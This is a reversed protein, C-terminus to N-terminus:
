THLFMRWLVQVRWDYSFQYDFTIHLLFQQWWWCGSSDGLGAPLASGAWGRCLSRPIHSTNQSLASISCHWSEPKPSCWPLSAAIGDRLNPAAPISCHWSEPKASCWALQPIQKLPCSEMKSLCQVRCLPKTISLHPSRLSEAWCLFCPLIWAHINSKLLDCNLISLIAEQKGELIISASPCSRSELINGSSM